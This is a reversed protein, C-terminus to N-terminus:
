GASPTTPLGLQEAKNLRKTEGRHRYMTKLADNVDNLKTVIGVCNM